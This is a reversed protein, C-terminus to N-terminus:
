RWFATERRVMMEEKGIVYLVRHDYAQQLQALDITDVATAAQFLAAKESELVGNQETDPAEDTVRAMEPLSLQREVVGPVNEKIVYDRLHRFVLAALDATIVEDMFGHRVVIRYCNPLYRIKSVVFRDEAPVTPYELPRMHFFVIVQPTSVLKNIFQSFVLPTKIGGKDFFIGLGKTISLAEGGASGVLRITGDPDKDVFTQLAHRDAAEAKWQQEKGFRWLIFISALVSALTLTFWAGNPVKTLASSIFAGDICAIVLWPLFVIWPRIRWVILATLATMTTDFFTVFMVCVGYAQGLSTTNNFVATIVVTGICLLYNALPVYLQNHFVKSTHVVKIQPFYSLKIIQAILQFTATIIAQSAVIAALIAIVLSPILM